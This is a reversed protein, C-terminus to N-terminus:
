KKYVGNMGVICAHNEVLEAYRHSGPMMARLWKHIPKANDASDAGRKGEIVRRVFDVSQEIAHLPNLLHERLSRM